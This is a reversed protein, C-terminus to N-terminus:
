GNQQGKNHHFGIGKNHEGLEQNEPQRPYLWDYVTKLYRDLLVVKMKVVQYTRTCDSTVLREERIQEALASCYRSLEELSMAVFGAQLSVGVGQWNGM